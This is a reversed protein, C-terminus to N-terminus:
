ATPDYELPTIGVQRCKNNISALAARNEDDMIYGTAVANLLRVAALKLQFVKSRRDGCADLEQRQIPFSLLEVPLKRM